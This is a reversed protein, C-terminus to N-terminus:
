FGENRFLLILPKDSIALGKTTYYVQDTLGSVAPELRTVGAMSVAAQGNM